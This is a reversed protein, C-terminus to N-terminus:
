GNMWRDQRVNMVTAMEDMKVGAPLGPPARPCEWELAVWAGLIYCAGACVRLLCVCLWELHVPAEWIVFLEKSQLSLSPSLPQDINTLHRSKSSASLCKNILPLILRLCGVRGPKFGENMNSWCTKAEKQTIIRDSSEPPRLAPEERPWAGRHKWAKIPQKLFSPQTLRLSGAEQQTWCCNLLDGEVKGM